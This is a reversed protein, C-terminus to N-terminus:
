KNLRDRMYELAEKEVAHVTKQTAIMQEAADLVLSQTEGSQKSLRSVAQKFATVSLDDLNDTLKEIMDKTLRSDKSISQCVDLYIQKEAQRFQGDAKGVYLLVRLTDYDTELLKTASPHPSQQYRQHLFEMVDTVVEGTESDVCTKVRDARFTRTANRLHCHGIFMGGLHKHDFQRVTVTRQTDLGNADTYDILLVADVPTPEDAEWFTGEWADKEGQMNDLTKPADHSQDKQRRMMLYALGLGLVLGILLTEM